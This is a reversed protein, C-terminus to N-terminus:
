HPKFSSNRLDLKNYAPNKEHKSANSAAKTEFKVARPSVCCTPSENKGNPLSYPCFGGLLFSTQGSPKDDDDTNAKAAKV